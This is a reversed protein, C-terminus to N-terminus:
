PNQVDAICLTASIGNRYQRQLRNPSPFCLQILNFPSNAHQFTLVDSSSCIWPVLDQTITNTDQLAPSGRVIAQCVTSYGHTLDLSTSCACLHTTSLNQWCYIGDFSCSSNLGRKLHCSGSIPISDKSGLLLDYPPTLLSVFGCSRKKSYDSSDVMDSMNAFFSSLGWPIMVRCATTSDGKRCSPQVCGSIFGNKEDDFVTVMNGCGVDWFENKSDSFYFPSGTLNLSMGKSYNGLCNSYIVAHNVLVSGDLFSFDQLQLNIGNINILPVSGNNGMQKCTVRFWHNMYDEDHIGFPYHFRVWDTSNGCSEEKYLNIPGPGRCVGHDCYTSNIGLVAPVHTTEISIDRPFTFLSELYYPSYMFASACRNNDKSSPYMETMSVTYSTLKGSIETFCNSEYVPDGCEPQICGGLSGAGNGFITAVNGCGVSGFYNSYECLFYFPTGTLNVMGGADDKRDCNVHTVPNSILITDPDLSGLVELDLGNINIFPRKGEKCTVRFWSKDYCSSNIGLPSPITVNGCIDQQCDGTQVLLLFIFYVGLHFGM